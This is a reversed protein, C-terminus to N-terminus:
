AWYIDERFDEPIPPNDKLAWARQYLVSVFMTAQRWLEVVQEPTLMHITNNEDRWPMPTSSGSEILDKAVDKQNILNERTQPDGALRIPNAYGSVTFTSGLLVRRDREADVERAAKSQDLAAVEADYYARQDPTLDDLTLWTENDTTFEQGNRVSVDRTGLTATLADIDITM